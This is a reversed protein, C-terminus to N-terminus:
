VFLYAVLIAPLCTQLADITLDAAVVLKAELRVVQVQRPGAEPHADARVPPTRLLHDRAVRPRGLALREFQHGGRLEVALRAGVLLREKEAGVVPGADRECTRSGKRQRRKM